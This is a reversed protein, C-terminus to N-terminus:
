MSCIGLTTAVLATCRVAPSIEALKGLGTCYFRDYHLLQNSLKRGGIGEKIPSLAELGGPWQKRWKVDGLRGLKRRLSIARGSFSCLLAVILVVRWNTMACFRIIACSKSSLMGSANGLSSALYGKRSFCASFLVHM